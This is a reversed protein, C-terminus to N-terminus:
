ERRLLYMLDERTMIKALLSDMYNRYQRNDDALSVIRQQLEATSAQDIATALAARQTTLTTPSTDKDAAELQRQSLVSLYHNNHKRLDGNAAQLQAIEQTMAAVVSQLQEFKDPSSSSSSSLSGSRHGTTTTVGVAKGKSKVQELERRLSESEARAADLDRSQQVIAASQADSSDLMGERLQELM